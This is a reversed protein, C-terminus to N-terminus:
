NQKSGNMIEKYKQLIGKYIAIKIKSNDYENSYISPGASDMAEIYTTYHNIGRQLYNIFEKQQAEQAQVLSDYKKSDKIRSSCDTRNCYCKELQNKLKRHEEEDYCHTTGSLQLKLRENKEAYETLEEVIAKYAKDKTKIEERLQGNLMRHEENVQKLKQNEEVLKTNEEYLLETTLTGVKEYKNELQKKLKQNEKEIMEVYGQITEIDEKPLQQVVSILNMKSLMKSM